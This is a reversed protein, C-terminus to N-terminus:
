VVGLRQKFIIDTAYFHWGYVSVYHFPFAGGGPLSVFAGNFSRSDYMHLELPNENGRMIIIVHKNTTTHESSGSPPAGIYSVASIVYKAGGPMTVSDGGNM